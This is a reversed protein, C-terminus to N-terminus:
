SPLATGVQQNWIGLRVFVQGDLEEAARGGQGCANDNAGKARGLGEIAFGEREADIELPACGNWGGLLRDSVSLLRFDVVDEPGIGFAGVNDDTQGKEAGNQGRQRDQKARYAHNKSVVFGLGPARFVM